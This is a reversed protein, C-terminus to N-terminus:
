PWIPAETSFEPHTQAYLNDRERQDWLAWGALPGYVDELARIAMAAVQILERAGDSTNNAKIESWWEDMEELVVAYAEHPSHHRPHRDRARRLERAIAEHVQRRVLDERSDTPIM